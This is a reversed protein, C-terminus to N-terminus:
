GRAHRVRVPYVQAMRPHFRDALQLDWAARAQVASGDRRAIARFHGVRFFEYPVYPCLAVSDASRATGSAHLSRSWKATPVISQGWRFPDDGLGRGDGSAM